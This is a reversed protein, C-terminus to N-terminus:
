NGRIRSLIKIGIEYRVSGPPFLKKLSINKDKNSCDTSTKPLVSYAAHMLLHEYAPINRAYMWFKSGKM